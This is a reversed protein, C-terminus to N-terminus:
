FPRLLTAWFNCGGAEAAGAVAGVSPSSSPLIPLPAGFTHEVSTQFTTGAACEILGVANLQMTETTTGAFTGQSQQKDYAVDVIGTGAVNAQIVLLAHCATAGSNLGITCGVEWLGAVNANLLPAQVVRGAGATGGTDWKVTGWTPTGAPSAISEASQRCICGSQGSGYKVALGDPELYLANLPDPDIIVDAVLRNGDLSLAVTTTNALCPWDTM